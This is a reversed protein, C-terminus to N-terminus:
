TPLHLKVPHGNKSSWILVCRDFGTSKAIQKLAQEIKGDIQSAPANAFQASFDMILKELELLPESSKNTLNSKSSKNKM